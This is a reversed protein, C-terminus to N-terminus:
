YGLPYGERRTDSVGIWEKGVREIAQVSGMADTPKLSHGMKKLSNIIDYSLGNEEYYLQDPLWQHHFRFAHVADSLPMHYDITNVITQLTASIIKPGGPSGVVLMLENNKDFVLTPSMSSLMTKRAAIANAKSGVLGFVNPVGPKKSFDDMEDNLMIGTGAAVVCSGFTYNITQTSSVANGWQDVISFHTTSRSEYALPDGAGIEKSSTAKNLNISSRLKEAYKKSVLGKQPVKVFEPDGLYKARDAFARRMAETIVHVSEPTNHGMMELNYGELINLIEVIHIGGSSPPPMSLVKYGRYTGTVPQHMKTRYALLDNKRILGGGRKMEAVIKNAVKGKYFGDKGHQKIQELTWALDKQVLTDGVKLPVGKPLFIKKSAEFKDLVYRKSEIAEALRAYVEFGNKAIDIAPQIVQALSLKGHKAHSEVVGAVLGPTGVALHGNVSANSIIHGKYTFDIPKGKSDIYMDRSAKFPARERFDYVETNSKQKDFYLMFGGGGLGTSQPRVVSIVFSVAAAADIANGGMKLMDLGAKSALPHSTSIMGKTGTTIFESRQRHKQYPPFVKLTTCNSVILVISILFYFSTKM